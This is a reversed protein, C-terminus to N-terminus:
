EAVHDEPEQEGRGPGGPEPPIRGRWRYRRSPLQAKRQCQEWVGIYNDASRYLADIINHPVGVNRLDQLFDPLLGYHAMGDLNLDFDRQGARSRRLAGNATYLNSGAPGLHEHLWDPLVQSPHGQEMALWHQWVRSLKPVLRRIRRPDTPAAAESNAALFAALQASGDRAHSSWRPWWRKGPIEAPLEARDRARLGYGLNMVLRATWPARRWWHPRDAQHPEAGARWVAIAEWFCREVADFPAGRGHDAFRHHRYEVLPSDYRVGATQAFVEDRRTPLRRCQRVQQDAKARLAASGCPGFRPGPLQGAGNVDSGLALQIGAMRPHLWLLAQAFSKASGSCNNAVAPQNSASRIDRQNCFLSVLGGLQRIREVQESSRDAESALARANATGFWAANARARFTANPDPLAPRWGHRLARISAHGAVVPYHNAECLDLVAALTKHGMHDVDIIMGRAILEQILIEGYHTLGRANIHGGSTAAWNTRQPPGGRRLLGRFGHYAIREALAGGDFFDEDLRYSIGLEAPATEVVFSAGTAVYNVADYTRVFVAPGGFANDAAHVPFVHRVGRDYLDQVLQRILGAPAVGAIEAARELEHPTHWGGLADVEVGLVVALRGEGAIRRADAPSYAVEMWGRGLGGCRADVFDVMSEIARLQRQIASMDDVAPNQGRLSSMRRGLLENNVALCVALRLGGDVARRLWDVYAQQHAMTTHRPWGDFRPYGGTAHRGVGELSPVAGWRGHAPVCPALADALAEDDSLTPDRAHPAGWIGYGGFAVHAALHLHTDALGFIPEQAM